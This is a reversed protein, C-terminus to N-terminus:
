KPLSTFKRFLQAARSLKPSSERVTPRVDGSTSPSGSMAVMAGVFMVSGAALTQTHGSSSPDSADSLAEETNYADDISSEAGTIGPTAVPQARQWARRAAVSSWGSWPSPLHDDVRDQPEPSEELTRRRGPLPMDHPPPVWMISESSDIAENSGDPEDVDDKAEPIMKPSAPPRDSAEDADSIKGQRVEFELLLRLRDEGPEQLQFRYKGDPLKGIVELMDDLVSEPLMVRQRVTGDPSLIEISVSRESAVSEDSRTAEIRVSMGDSLQVGSQLLVDIFKAAEPIALLVVPPTVDFPFSALGDGPVVAVSSAPTIDLNTSHATLSVASVIEQSEPSRGRPDQQIDLQILIPAAPDGANPNGRYIHRFLFHGPDKFYYTEVTGDGWDVTIAFSQEGPRGFTGQIIAEGLATVQPSSVNEILPTVGTIAGHEVSVTGNVGTNTSPGTQVLVNKDFAVEDVANMDIVGTGTVEMDVPQGTDFLHITRDARLFLNGNGGSVVITARVNIDSVTNGRAEITLSGHSSNAIASNVDITANNTLTIHGPVHGANTLGSVGDVDAVELPQGSLSVIQVNGSSSNFIALRFVNLELANGHGVGQGARIALSGGTVDTVGDDGGDVVEGSHSTISVLGGLATSTEVHGLTVNRFANLRITSGSTSRTTFREASLGSLRSASASASAGVTADIVAGDAMFLEGNVATVTIDGGASVLQSVSGMRVDRDATIIIPGGTTRVQSDILVDSLVGQATLTVAGTTATVGPQSGLVHLTGGTLVRVFGSNNQDLQQIQLVDTEVLDVNTDTALPTVADGNVLHLRHVRTEIAGNAGLGALSGVGTWTQITTLAGHSNAVLNEGTSDGGDVLGGRRSVLTLASTTTNTTIVRGLTIDRDARLEITGSGSSLVSGDRMWLGGGAGADAIDDDDAFVTIQGGQSHIQGTAGDGSEGIVIDDDALLTISGGTTSIAARLDLDSTNNEASLRISGARTQVGGGEVSPASVVLTGQSTVAVVGAGQQDIQRIAFGSAHVEDIRVHGIVAVGHNAANVADLNALSTELAADAGGGVASGIGTVARLTVRASASEAVLNATGADGGDIIAACNSTIRIADSTNNTTIVQGLTIDDDATLSVRGSGANVVAGNAMFLQGDCAPTATGATTTIDGTTALVRATTTFSLDHGIDLTVHGSNSVIQGSAHMTDAVDLNLLGSGTEIRGAHVIDDGITLTMDGSTSRIIGSTTTSLHRVVDVTMGGSNTVVSGAATLDRGVDLTLDGASTVIKGGNTVDLDTGIVATLTHASESAVDFLEFQGNFQMSAATLLTYNEDQTVAGDTGIKTGGTHTSTGLVVHDSHIVDLQTDTFHLDQSADELGLSTAASLTQITVTRGVANVSTTPLTLTDTTFTIDHGTTDLSASGSTFRLAHGTFQFGDTGDAEVTGCTLVDGVFQTIHGLLQQFSEAAFSGGFSTDAAQSILVDGLKTTAGLNGTVSIGGTGTSLTLDEAQDFTGDVTGDVTLDAGGGSADTKWTISNTLLVPGTISVAGRNTTIDAATTLQGITMTLGGVGTTLDSASTLTTTGGSTVTMGHGAQFTASSDISTAADLNVNRGADVPATIVIGASTSILSVDRGATVNDSLSVNGVATVLIDTGATLPDTASFVGGIQAMLRGLTATVPANLTTHDGSVLTIASEALLAASATLTTGATISLDTGSDFTATMTTSTASELTVDRVAVVAAIVHISSGSSTFTVDGGATMTATSTFSGGSLASLNGAIAEVPADLLMAGGAHLTVDTGATISQTATLTTQADWAVHGLTATVSAHTTISALQSTLSVDSAATLAGQVLISGSALFTVDHGSTLTAQQTITGFSRVSDDGTTQVPGELTVSTTASQITISTVTIAVYNQSRGQEVVFNGGGSISGNTDIDGSVGADLTLDNGGTAVMSHFTMAAGPGVDMRDSDIRVDGTLTVADNLTIAGSTTLIDAGTTLTGSVSVGGSGACLDATAALFTGSGTTLHMSHSATISQTADFTTAATITINDTADLTNTMSISGSTSALTIDDGAIIAGGITMSSVSTLTVDTGATLAQTADITTAATITIEDTADLTNTTSISGSTSTLTIDDGADIEGGISLAEVSTLNVDTGATLDQMAVFTTAADATINGITATVPATLHISATTSTLTVNNTATMAGSSDIGAVANVMIETGATLTDTSSYRGGVSATIRGLRATVPDDLTM